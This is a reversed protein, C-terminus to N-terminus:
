RKDERAFRVHQTKVYSLLNGRGINSRYQGLDKVGGDTTCDRLILMQDSKSLATWETDFVLALAAVLTQDDHSM